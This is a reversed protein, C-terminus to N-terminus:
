AARRHQEEAMPIPMTIITVTSIGGSDGPSAINEVNRDVKKAPIGVYTGPEDINKVVVAGTGIITNDVVDKGQIIQSGTGFECCSGIHVKGSVNVSPYFTVFSETEVDHGITCDLNIINHSGIRIDVTLISDACIICGEGIEVSDSLKVSPDILTAFNCNLSEVVKKRAKANGVAVVAWVDKMDNLPLEHGHVKYKGAMTGHLSSDSDMFGKLNWTPKVANIREVLWAVERGFGGAGIIYLDKLDNM